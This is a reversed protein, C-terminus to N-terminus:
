IGAFAIGAGFSFKRPSIPPRAGGAPIPFSREPGYLIARENKRAHGPNKPYFSLSRLLGGIGPFRGTVAAHHFGPSVEPFAPTCVSVGAM